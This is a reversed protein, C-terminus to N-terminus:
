ESWLVARLSEASELRGNTKMAGHFSSRRVGFFRDELDTACVVVVLSIEIPAETTFSEILVM